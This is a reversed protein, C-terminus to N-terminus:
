LSTRSRSAAMAVNVFLVSLCGLLLVAGAELSLRPVLTRLVGTLAVVAVIALALSGDDVFLGILERFMARVANM